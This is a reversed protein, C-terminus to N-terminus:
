RGVAAREVQQVAEAFGQVIPAFAREAEIAPAAKRTTMAHLLRDLVFVYVSSLTEALEPAHRKDLTNLLETVIDSAKSLSAIASAARKTELNAAATRIHRLATEFLLVM